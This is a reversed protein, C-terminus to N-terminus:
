LIVHRKLMVVLRLQIHIFFVPKKQQVYISKVTIKIRYQIDNKNARKNDGKKTHTHINRSIKLEKRKKIEITKKKEKEKREGMIMAIRMKMRSNKKHM